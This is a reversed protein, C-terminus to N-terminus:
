GAREATLEATFTLAAHDSLPAAARAGALLTGDVEYLYRADRVQIRATHLVHDIRSRRTSNDLNTFSWPGDPRPVFYAEAGPFRVVTVSHDRCSKFPDDNLDGTVVIARDQASRLIAALEERYLHRDRGTYSPARVGIFEIESNSLRLHFFNTTVHSTLAPPSLDGVEFPLRSAVFIQNHKPPAPSADCYLYGAANLQERFRDRDSGGGNVFETLLVVDAGICRLIESLRPPIPKPQIRHNVNWTAVTLRNIVLSAGWM